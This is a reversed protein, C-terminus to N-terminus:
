QDVTEEVNIEVTSGGKPRLNPGGVATFKRLEKLMADRDLKENAWFIYKVKRRTDRLVNRVKGEM